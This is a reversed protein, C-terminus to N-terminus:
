RVFEEARAPASTLAATPGSGTFSTSRRWVLAGGVAAVCCGTVALMWTTANDTGIGVGHLVAVPWAAYATRHIARWARVGLRGRFLSTLVLALMLDLALTGLGLWFPRYTGVFPVVVDALRLQAYPDVLLAAVHVALFAVALLSTSRHVGQVVFRPLGPLPRGSRAAIGLVVVVTFLVLTTVGSGRALYWAASTLEASM